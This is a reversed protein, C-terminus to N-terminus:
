ELTIEVSAGSSIRALGVDLENLLTNFVASAIRSVSLSAQTGFGPIELGPPREVDPILFDSSGQDIINKMRSILSGPIIGAGDDAFRCDIVVSASSTAASLNAIVEGTGTGGVWKLVLPNSADHTSSGSVAPQVLTLAPPAAVSVRFGSLQSGGDGEFAYTEGGRYVSPALDPASYVVYGSSAASGDKPLVVSSGPSMLHLANGADLTLVDLEPIASLDIPIENLVCENINPVTGLYSGVLDELNGSVDLFVGDAMVDIGAFSQQREFNLAGYRTGNGGSAEDVVSFPVVKVDIFKLTGPETLAVAANWTGPTLGGPVQAADFVFTAPFTFGAPLTLNSFWPQLRTNWDPFEYIKGSPAILGVHVDVDKRESSFGSVSIPQSVGSAYPLFYEGVFVGIKTAASASSASVGAAIVIAFLRRALFRIGTCPTRM